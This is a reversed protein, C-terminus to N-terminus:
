NTSSGCIIDRKEEILGSVIALRKINIFFNLHYNMFRTLFLYNQNISFCTFLYKVQEYLFDIYSISDLYNELDALLKKPDEEEIKELNKEIEKFKKTDTINIEDIKDKSYNFRSINSINSYNIKQNKVFNLLNSNNNNNGQNNSIKNIMTKHNIIKFSSAEAHTNLHKEAEVIAKGVSLNYSFRLYNGFLLYCCIILANIIGGIKAALEQIKLYSRYTIKYVKPSSITVWYYSQPLYISKSDIQNNIQSFSVYENIVKDEFLWGNDSIFQNKTFQFFSRRLFGSSIQQSYTDFYFNVPNKHDFPNIYNNIFFIKFYFDDKKQLYDPRVTENFKPDRYNFNVNVFSSNIQGYDNKIITNEDFDLCILLNMDYSELESWLRTYNQLENFYTLSCPSAKFKNRFIQPIGNTINAFNATITFYENWNNYIKGNVDNILFFIPFSKLNFESNDAFSSYSASVPLNKDFLEKGFLISIIITFVIVLFSLMSGFWSRYIKSGNHEFSLNDSLFDIKTFFNNSSSM